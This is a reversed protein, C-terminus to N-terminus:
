ARDLMRQLASISIYGFGSILNMMADLHTKSGYSTRLSTAVAIVAAKYYSFIEFYILRKPDVINGSTQEYKELFEDKPMLGSTLVEGNELPTGLIDLTSYALDEHFDGIHSLEWDLIANIRQDETYMFNGSRYDGHVIVPNEVIPMNEWLWRAANEVVPHAEIADEQWVREWWGLSWANGETSNSRPQDYTSLNKQRWDVNHIHALHEVFQDKLGKRLEPEFYMGLGSAKEGGEPQVIGELFGAILFPHGLHEDTPECWFVEPVPIEGWMAKLVQAERLRHTEVISESPDMRLILKRTDSIGSKQRWTLDFTFQEKSAGGSLRALNAITIDDQDTAARLYDLLRTEMHEFDTRHAASHSRNALKKSLVEDITREVPYRSRIQEIWARDPHARNKLTQTYYPM